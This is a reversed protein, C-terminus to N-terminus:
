AAVSRGALRTAQLHRFRSGSGLLTAARGALQEWRQVAVDVDRADIDMACCIRGTTETAIITTSCDCFPEHILDGAASNDLIPRRM